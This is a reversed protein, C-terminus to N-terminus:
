DRKQCCVSGQSCKKPLRYRSKVWHLQACPLPGGFEDALKSGWFTHCSRTDACRELQEYCDETPCRAALLPLGFCITLLFFMFVM